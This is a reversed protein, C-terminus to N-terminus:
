RPLKDLSPKSLSDFSPDWQHNSDYPAAMCRWAGRQKVLDFQLGGGPTWEGWSLSQDWSTVPYLTYAIRQATASVRVRTRHEYGNLSDSALTLPTLRFTPANYEIFASGSQFTAWFDGRQLFHSAFCRKAEALSPDEPAPTPSQSLPRVSTAPAPTSVSTTPAPASKEECAQLLLVPALILIINSKM